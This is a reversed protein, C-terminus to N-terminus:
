HGGSMDIGEDDSYEEESPPAPPGNARMDDAKKTLWKRAADYSAGFRELRVAEKNIAAWNTKKNDKWLVLTDFAGKHQALRARVADAVAAELNAAQVVDAVVCGPGEAPLGIQELLGVVQQQSALSPRQARRNEEYMRSAMSRAIKKGVKHLQATEVHMLKSELNRQMQEVQRDSLRGPGSWGRVVATEKELVKDVVDGRSSKSMSMADHGHQFSGRRECEKRDRERFSEDSTSRDRRDGDRSCDRRHLDCHRTTFRHDTM